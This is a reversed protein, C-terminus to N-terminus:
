RREYDEVASYPPPPESPLNQEQVTPFQTQFRSDEEVDFSLGQRSYPPPAVVEGELDPQAFVNLNEQSESPPLEGLQRRRQVELLIEITPKSTCPHQWGCIHSMYTFIFVGVLIPLASLLLAISFFLPDVKDPYFDLLIQDLNLRNYFCGFQTGPAGFITSFQTIEDAPDHYECRSYYVM